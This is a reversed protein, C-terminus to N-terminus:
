RSPRPAIAQTGDTSHCDVVFVESALPRIRELCRRIHLCENYTLIIVSLRTKM